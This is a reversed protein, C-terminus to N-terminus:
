VFSDLQLLFCSFSYYFFSNMLIFCCCCCCCCFIFCAYGFSPSSISSCHSVSFLLSLKLHFHSKLPPTFTACYFPLPVFYCQQAFSKYCCGDTTTDSWIKHTHTHTYVQVAIRYWLSVSDFSFTMALCRVISLFTNAVIIYPQLTLHANFVLLGCNMENACLSLRHNKKDFIKTSAFENGDFHTDNQISTKPHFNQKIQAGMALANWGCFSVDVGDHVFSRLLYPLLLKWYSHLRHVIYRFLSGIPKNINIRVLLFKQQLQLREAPLTFSIWKFRFSLLLIQFIDKAKWCIEYCHHACQIDYCFMWREIVIFNVFLM